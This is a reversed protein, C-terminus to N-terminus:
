DLVELYLAGDDHYMGCFDIKTEKALYDMLRETKRFDPDEIALVAREYWRPDTFTVRFLRPGVPEIHLASTNM